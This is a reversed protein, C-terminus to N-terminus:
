LPYRMRIIEYSFANKLNVKIGDSSSIDHFIKQSMYKRAHQVKYCEIVKGITNLIDTDVEIFLNHTTQEVENWPYTFGLITASSKFCRITEENITRHDQHVDGTSPTIVLSPNIRDKLEVLNELICQRHASFDRGPYDFYHVSSKKIGLLEIAAENEEVFKEKQFGLANVSKECFSFYVISCDWGEKELRLMLPLGGLEDDIHPAIMLLKKNDIKLM